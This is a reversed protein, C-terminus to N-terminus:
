LAVSHVSVAEACVKCMDVGTFVQLAPRTGLAASHVAATCVKCMDLGTIYGTNLICLQLFLPTCVSFGNRTCLRPGQGRTCILCRVAHVSSATARKVGGFYRQIYRGYCNQSCSKKFSIPVGSFFFFIYIYAAIHYM